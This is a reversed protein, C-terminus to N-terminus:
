GSPLMPPMGNLERRRNIVRRAYLSSHQPSIEPSSALRWDESYEYRVIYDTIVPRFLEIDQQSFWHRWDGAGGRRFVHPYEIPSSGDLRGLPLGLYDSVPGLNGGIMDEYRVRLSRAKDEFEFIWRHYSVLWSRFRELGHGPLFSLTTSLLECFPLARPTREKTELLSLIEHSAKECAYIEPSQQLLFLLGSVLWDRPDRVLYLRYDFALYPELPSDPELIVKALVSQALRDPFSGPEFLKQEFRRAQSLLHFLATSGCKYKSFIAIKL